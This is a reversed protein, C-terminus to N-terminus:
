ERTPPNTNQIMEFLNGLTVESDQVQALDFQYEDRLFLAFTEVELDDPWGDSPYLSRYVDMLKDDPSFKLRDKNKFAFGDVFIQLFRRIKEKSVDPFRRRWERGMCARDWYRQLRRKREREFPTMMIFVVVAVLVVASIQLPTKMSELTHLHSTLLQMDETELKQHTALAFTLNRIRVPRHRAAMRSSSVVANSYPTHHIKARRPVLSQWLSPYRGRRTQSLGHEMEHIAHTWRKCRKVHLSHLELHCLCDPQLRLRSPFSIRQVAPLESIHRSCQHRSTWGFAHEMNETGTGRALSCHRRTSSACPSQHRAACVRRQDMRGSDRWWPGKGLGEM